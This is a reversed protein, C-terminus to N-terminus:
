KLEIMRWHGEGGREEEGHPHPAAVLGEDLIIGEERM